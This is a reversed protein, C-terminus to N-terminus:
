SRRLSLRAASDAPWAVASSLCVLENVVGIIPLLACLACCVREPEGWSTECKEIYNNVATFPQFHDDDVM